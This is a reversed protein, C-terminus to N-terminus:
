GSILGLCRLVANQVKNFHEVSPANGQVIDKLIKEVNDHEVDPTEDQDEEDSDKGKEDVDSEESESEEKVIKKKKKEKPASEKVETGELNEEELAEIRQQLEPVTWNAFESPDRKTLLSIAEILAQKDEDYNEEEKLAELRDSIQNIDWGEFDSVPRGSVNSVANLLDERNREEEVAELRQSLEPIEWDTYDGGIMEELKERLKTRLHEIKKQIVEEVVQEAEEKTLRNIKNPSLSHFASYRLLIERMGELTMEAELVELRQKLDENTWTSYFVPDRGTLIALKNLIKFRKKMAKNLTELLAPYELNQLSDVPVIESLASLVVQKALKDDVVPPQEKSKNINKLFKKIAKKTGFVKAGNVEEVVVGDPLNKKKVCTPPDTEINCRQGKGCEYNPGCPTGSIISDLKDMTEELDEVKEKSKKKKNSPSKGVKPKEGKEAKIINRIFADKSATGIGGQPIAELNKAMTTLDMEGSKSRRPLASLEEYRKRDDPDTIDDPIEVDEEKKKSKSKSKKKEVQIDQMELEGKQAELNQVQLIKKILLKKSKEPSKDKMEALLERRSLPPKKGEKKAEKKLKKVYALLQESSMSKLEEKTAM